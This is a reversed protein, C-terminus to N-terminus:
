RHRNGARVSRESAEHTVEESDVNANCQDIAAERQDSSEHESICSQFTVLLNSLVIFIEIVSNSFM